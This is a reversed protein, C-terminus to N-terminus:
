LPEGVLLAALEEGAVAGAELVSIGSLRVAAGQEGVRTQEDDRDLSRGRSRALRSFSEFAIACGACLVWSRPEGPKARRSIKQYSSTAAPVEISVIESYLSSYKAPTSASQRSANGFSAGQFLAEIATASFIRKWGSRINTASSPRSTTPETIAPYSPCLPQIELIATRWACRRLPIPRASSESPSLRRAASPQM